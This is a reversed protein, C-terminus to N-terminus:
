GETGGAGREMTRPIVVISKPVSPCYHQCVGCGTCGEEKVHIRNNKLEIAANGVPCQDICTTCPDGAARICTNPRWEALGMDIEERAVEVLAGSPCERMCHLGDCMVCPQTLPTYPSHNRAATGPPPQVTPPPAPPPVPADLKGIEKAMREMPAMRNQLPKLLEALGERFFRRRNMPKQDDSM